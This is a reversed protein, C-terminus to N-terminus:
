WKGYHPLFIDRWDLVAVGLEALQAIESDFLKDSCLQLKGSRLAENKALVALLEDVEDLGPDSVCLNWPLPATGIIPLFEFVPVGDVCVHSLRQADVSRLCGALNVAELGEQLLVLRELAPFTSAALATMVSPDLPNGILYLERIHEHRTKRMTSCGTIFARQLSPCAELVDSIDGLTNYSQRAVTDPADFIFEQLSPNLAKELQSVHRPDDWDPAQPDNWDTVMAHVCRPEDTRLRASIAELAAASPPEHFAITMRRRSADFELKPESM